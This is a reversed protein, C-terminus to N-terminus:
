NAYINGNADIQALEPKGGVPISAAVVDGTKADIATADASRGNFTFVRHSVPEYIIADPNQGTKVKTIVKLTKIDFVTVDNDGGDSTFGRGIDNGIAIGHVGKTDPITGVLKDTSTDIVETQTGHSVYLRHNVSDLYAYDWGTAGGIKIKDVVKYTPPAAMALASAAILLLKMGHIM